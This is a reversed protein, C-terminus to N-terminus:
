VHLSCLPYELNSIAYRAIGGVQGGVGSKPLLPWFSLELLGGIKTPKRNKEEWGKNGNAGYEVTCFQIAGKREGREVRTAELGRGRATEM